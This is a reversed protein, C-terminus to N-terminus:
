GRNLFNEDSNGWKTFVTGFKVGELIQSRKTKYQALHKLPAPQTIVLCTCAPQIMFTEQPWCRLCQCLVFPFMTNILNHLKIHSMNKKSPYKLLSSDLITIGFLQLTTCTFKLFKFDRGQLPLMCDLMLLQVSSSRVNQFAM